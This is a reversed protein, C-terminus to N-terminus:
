VSGGADSNEASGFYGPENKELDRVRQEVAVLLRGLRNRMAFNVIWQPLWPFAGAVQYRMISKGDEEEMIWAGQNLSLAGKIQKWAAKRLGPEESVRIELELHYSAHPLNLVQTEILTGGPGPRIDSEEVFPLFEDFRAQDTMVKWLKDAPLPSLRSIQVATYGGGWPIIQTVPGNELDAATYVRPDVRGGVRYMHGLVLAGLLCLVLTLGRKLGRLRPAASESAGPVASSQVEEGM